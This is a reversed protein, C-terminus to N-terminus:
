AEDGLNSKYIRTLTGCQVADYGLFCSGKNGGTESDQIEYSLRRYVNLFQFIFICILSTFGTELSTYSRKYM